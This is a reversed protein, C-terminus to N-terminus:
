LCPSPPQSGFRHTQSWLANRYGSCSGTQRDTQAETTAQSESPTYQLSGASPPGLWTGNTKLGALVVGSELKTDGRSMLGSVSFGSLTWSSTVQETSQPPGSGVAQEGALAHSWIVGWPHPHESHPQRLTGM